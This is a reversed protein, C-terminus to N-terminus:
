TVGTPYNLVVQGCEPCVAADNGRLDYGCAFCFPPRRGHLEAIITKRMVTRLRSLQLIYLVASGTCVIIAFIAIAANSPGRFNDFPAAAIVGGIVSPTISRFLITPYTWWPVQAFLHAREQATLHDLEPFDAIRWFM